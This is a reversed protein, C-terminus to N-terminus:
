QRSHRDLPSQHWTKPTPHAIRSFPAMKQNDQSTLVYQNPHYRCPGFYAEIAQRDAEGIADSHNHAVFYVNMGDAQQIFQINRYLTNLRNALLLDNKVVGDQVIAHKVHPVFQIPVAYRGCECKDGGSGIRLLDDGSRHEILNLLNRCSGDPLQQFTPFFHRSGHRCTFFNCGTFWDVMQNNVPALRPYFADCNTSSLLMKDPRSNLLEVLPQHQVLVSVVNPSAVLCIPSTAARMVECLQGRRKVWDAIVFKRMVGRNSSSWKWDERHQEKSFGYNWALGICHGGLPNKTWHEIVEVIQEGFPAMDYTRPGRTSGSTRFYYPKETTRVRRDYLRGIRSNFESYHKESFTRIATLLSVLNSKVPNAYYRGYLNLM